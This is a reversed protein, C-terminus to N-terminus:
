EKAPSVHMQGDGGCGAQSFSYLGAVLPAVGGGAVVAGAIAMHTGEVAVALTTATVAIGNPATRLLYCNSVQRIKASEAM